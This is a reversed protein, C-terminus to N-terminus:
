ITTSQSRLVKPSLPRRGVQVYDPNGPSYIELLMLNSDSLNSISHPENRELFIADDKSLNYEEDSVILRAKGELVYYISLSKSHMHYPGEGCNPRLQNVSVAIGTADDQGAFLRFKTGRGKIEQGETHELKLLQMLVVVQSNWFSPSYILIFDRAKMALFPKIRINEQSDGSIDSFL